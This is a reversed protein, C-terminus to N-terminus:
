WLTGCCSTGALIIFDFVSKTEATMVLAELPLISVQLFATQLYREPEDTLYNVRGLGLDALIKDVNELTNSIVLCIAINIIVINIVIHLM